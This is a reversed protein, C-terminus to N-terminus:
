VEASEWKGGAFRTALLIGRAFLDISLVLWVATLGFGLYSVAIM